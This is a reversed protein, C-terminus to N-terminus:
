KKKRKRVEGVGILLVIGAIVYYLYSKPEGAGHVTTFLRNWRIKNTLGQVRNNMSMFVMVPKGVVHNFPVYGWNRADQSNHRNDGMMWYYDQLFTYETLPQGNLLVQTGNTSVKNDMGMERGEYVEIIQKYFPITEPTISIRVGKKPIYIPGFNDVNWGYRSDQPFISKDVKGKESEIPVIKNVDPHNKLQELAEDTMYAQFATYERNLPYIDTIDYRQALYNLNLPSDSTVLHSFQLKARNPLDTIKGNIYVQKNVISLSDGPVAVARKVYNSKKDIPKIYSGKTPNMIDVLTDVPWNFVVIDNRKIKQFGPIRIYPLQPKNVYSKSKVFPLTDHVMPLSLGTMPVRPGYHLKSVFLYDGVLLTKELSSTPITFPQIFYTHIISAAVIAFLISSTWEGAKTRPKLSREKIHTLPQTYSVYGIYLGLTIVALFTDKATNKGFSRLTEVWVVPLMILNIIPLFLLITWWWPRHIIKMLIVANYIPILAEWAKRDAAVYLKWTCAFHVLQIFLFFLFWAMLTM